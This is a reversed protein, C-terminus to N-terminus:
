FTFEPRFHTYRYDGCMAIVKTFHWAVGGGVKVGLSTDSNSQNSPSFNNNDEAHAAFIAPGVTIYPQLQGTPLQATKLLPSRSMPDFRITWGSLAFDDFAGARGFSSGCSPRRRRGR